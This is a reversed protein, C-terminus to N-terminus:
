QKAGFVARVNMGHARPWTHLHMSTFHATKVEPSVLMFIANSPNHYELMLPNDTYDIEDSWYYGAYNRGKPSMTDECLGGAPFLISKGTKASTLKLCDIGDINEVSQTIFPCDILEQMEEPTPTRWQGGYLVHAIDDEQKLRIRYDPSTGYAPNNNYKALTNYSHGWAYTEWKYYTDKPAAEGWAVYYGAGGPKSAGVDFSAWKVSLGLDVAEPIVVKEPTEEEAKGCSFALLSLLVGALVPLFHKIGM